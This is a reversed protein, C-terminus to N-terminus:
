SGGLDYVALERIEVRDAGESIRLHSDLEVDEFVQTKDSTPWYIQLRDIREAAGLGITQRLPNAGFSGGTTVHKYITRKLDATSVDVRIRAGIASRNSTTGDLKVSVFRADFDAFVVNSFRSGGFLRGDRHDRRRVAVSADPIWAAPEHRSRVLM